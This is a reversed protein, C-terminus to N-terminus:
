ATWHDRIAYHGSRVMRSISSLRYLIDARVTIWWWACYLKTERRSFIKRVSIPGFSRTIILFRNRAEKQLPTFGFRQQKAKDGEAAQGLLTVPGAPKPRVKEQPKAKDKVGPRPKAKVEKTERVGCSAGGLALVFMIILGLLTKGSKAWGKIGQAMNMGEGSPMIMHRFYRM